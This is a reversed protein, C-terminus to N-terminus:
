KERVECGMALVMELFDECRTLAYNSNRTADTLKAKALYRQLKKHRPQVFEHQFFRDLIEGKNLLSRNTAQVAQAMMLKAILNDQTVSRQEVTEIYKGQDALQQTLTEFAQRSNFRPKTPTTTQDSKNEVDPQITTQSRSPAQGFPM